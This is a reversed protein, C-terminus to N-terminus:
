PVTRHAVFKVYLFVCVAVACIAIQVNRLLRYRDASVTLEADNLRGYGRQNLWVSLEIYATTAVGPNLPKATTYAQVRTFYTPTPSGMALWLLMDVQKLRAVVRRLSIQTAVYTILYAVGALIVYVTPIHDFM